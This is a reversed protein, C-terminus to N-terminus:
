GGTRRGYPFGLGISFSISRNEMYAPAVESYNPDYFITKNVSRLGYTFLVETKLTITESIAMQTGIGGAFGFDLINFKFSRKWYRRTLPDEGKNRIKFTMCLIAKM